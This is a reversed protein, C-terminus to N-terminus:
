ARDELLVVNAPTADPDRGAVVQMLRAEWAELAVRRERDFRHRDYVAVMGKKEHGITLEAIETAIRCASLGTRMTRRLDHPRWQGLVPDTKAGLERAHREIAKSLAATSVPSGPRAEFVYGSWEVRRRRGLREVEEKAAAIIELATDTLFVDHESETKGRRAAPINWVRGDIEDMHMAAVEGPRQGTVLIMRLALATMRHMGCSKSNAWFSRIEDTDLIRTRRRAGLQAPKGGVTIARPKLGAAPNAPILDRDAAFDLLQRVYLLVQGAARPTSAAKREVLDIVDRRRVDKVKQRGIVPIVDNRIYGSIARASKLGAINRNLWEEALEAVTPERRRLLAEELPDDGRAVRLALERAELRAAEVAWTPWQGITKLRRRGGASYRLVFFRRGAATVKLGFGSPAERHEDFYYVERKAPIAATAVTGSKGDTLKM